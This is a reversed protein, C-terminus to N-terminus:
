TRIDLCASDSAVTANPVNTTIKVSRASTWDSGVTLVMVAGQGQVPKPSAVRASWALTKVSQDFTADYDLGTTAVPAGAVTSVRTVDFGLARLQGAATAGLAAIGSGNRVEVRISSPEVTLTPQTPATGTARPPYTTDHIMAQWMLEAKAPVWLLNEGDGRAVTPVTYFAVKSPSLGQLSLVFDKLKDGSLGADVTLSSTVASLVSDLKFPNTFLNQGEVTRILASLFYHQRDVRGIDATPDLNRARVFQLAQTGDLVTTGAPLDLGSGHYHGNKDKYIPDHLPTVTCIPVGGLAKVIAEFGKFDVEVFNNITVHTLAEVVQIVCRRGGQAYAANFKGTVTGDVTGDARCSPRTVWSDRPISVAFASKRDAALHLLIVTDSQGNGSSTLSPDGFGTGQGTRTDSGVLLVNLAAYQQEPSTPTPETSALVSGLNPDVTIKDQIRNIEAWGVASATTLLLAVIALGATIRRAVHSQRPGVPAM